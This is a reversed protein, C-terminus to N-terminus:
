NKLIKFLSYPFGPFFANKIPIPKARAMAKLTIRIKPLLGQRSDIAARTKATLSTGNTHTGM